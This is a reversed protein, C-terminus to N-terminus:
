SKNLAIWKLFKIGTFIDASFFQFVRAFTNKERLFNLINVSTIIRLSCIKCNCTIGLM